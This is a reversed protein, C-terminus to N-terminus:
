AADVPEDFSLVLVRDFGLTDANPPPAAQAIRISVAAKSRGVVVDVQDDFGLGVWTVRITDPGTQVVDADHWGVSMGDAARGSRADRIHNGPDQLAVVVEHDDAIDLPIRVVAPDPDVSPSPSVAIPTSAPQPSPAQITPSPTTPAAPAPDSVANPHFVVIAAVLGAIAVAGLALAVAPHVQGTSSSQRSM